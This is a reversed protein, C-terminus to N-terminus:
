SISGASIVVVCIICPGPEDRLLGMKMSESRSSVKSCGYEVRVMGDGGDVRIQLIGEFVRTRCPGM